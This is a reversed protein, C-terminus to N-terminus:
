KPPMTLIWLINKIFIMFNTNRKKHRNATNKRM